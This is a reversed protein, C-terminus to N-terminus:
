MWGKKRFYFIMGLTIALMAALSAPYGYYWYIEPMFRFNMGYVGVIFTLPMFITAIITLRQMIVNMRTSITSLYAEFIGSMLDRFSDLASSIGSMSDFTDRFYIQAKESVLKFEGRSLRHVVERQPSIIRKMESIERKLKIIEKLARQTRGEIIENELREIKKDWFDLLPFYHNIMEDIISHLIFETGKSFLETNKEAIEKVKSVAEFIVKHVSVIYNKGLYIDVEKGSFVERKYDFAISHFVIFLYKKFEDIKPLENFKICDEITLPHFKFVESLMKYDEKTPKQIDIWAINKRNAIFEAYDKQPINKVIEKGNKLGLFVTM